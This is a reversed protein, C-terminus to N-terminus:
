IWQGGVLGILQEWVTGPAGSFILSSDAPIVRWGGRQIESELQGTSWGAYGSYVRAADSPKLSGLANGVNEVGFVAYVDDTVYDEGDRVTETQVLISFLMPHVPGGFYIEESATGPELGPFIESLPFRTPRNVILGLSGGSDHKVLLIVAERFRPDRIDKTAVLFSGVAPAQDRIYPMHGSAPSAAQCAATVMLGALFILGM